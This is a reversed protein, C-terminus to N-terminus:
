LMNKEYQSLSKHGYYGFSYSRANDVYNSTYNYILNSYNTCSFYFNMEVMITVIEEPNGINEYIYNDFKIFM